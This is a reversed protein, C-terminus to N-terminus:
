SHLCRGSFNPYEWGVVDEIWSRIPGTEKGTPIAIRQASKCITYASYEESIYYPTLEYPKM